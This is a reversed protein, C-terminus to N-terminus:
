VQGVREVTALGSLRDIQIGILRDPGMFGNRGPLEFGAQRLDDAPRSRGVVQVTWGENTEADVHDVEFAVVNESLARYLAGCEIGFVVRAGFLRYLVPVVAPLAGVSLAVRGLRETGLLRRCEDLDLRRHALDHTFVWGADTM